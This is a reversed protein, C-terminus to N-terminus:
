RERPPPGPLPTPPSKQRRHGKKEGLVKGRWQPSDRISISPGFHDIVEHAAGAQLLGMFVVVCKRTRTSTAAIRVARAVKAETIQNSTDDIAGAFTAGAFSCTCGHM